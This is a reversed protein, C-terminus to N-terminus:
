PLTYRLSIYVLNSHASKQNPAIVAWPDRLVYSYQNILSLGGYTPSKWLTQIWDFSIEQVSRNQTAGPEGYGVLVPKAATTDITTNRGVYAGGYYFALLTNKSVQAEMGDLTSYSHVLSLSGDTRVVFDPAIGFIYRGGGDSFFTDAILRVNKVIELNANISGGVGTATHAGHVAPASTLTVYDKFGRILGAAEVHFLKSGAHADYAAKVIIDPIWNPVNSSSNTSGNNFESSVNGGITTPLVVTSAGSGGGIYQQPNELSLGIAFDETPHAIFRFQPQRAWILGAQYNTDENQSYFIDAPVPSIGKRNPTLMTWDQGGLIEFKGKQADVFYNRLRFGASNSSVQYSAANNNFLFDAELYGLIKAGMFTSDVRFGVRSNQASFNTESLHDTVSTNFPVGAFNTGIGSGVASSRAFFTADVFGLPTFTSNGIAISLPSPKVEEHQMYRPANVIDRKVTNVAPVMSVPAGSNATAVVATGDNTTAASASAAKISEELMKQQADVAQQLKKIQEQQEAIRAKLQELAASNATQSGGSDSNATAAAPAQAKLAPVGVASVCLLSTILRRNM